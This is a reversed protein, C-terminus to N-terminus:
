GLSLRSGETPLISVAIPSLGSVLVELIVDRRIFIFWRMAPVLMGWAM